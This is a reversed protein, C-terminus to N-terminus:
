TQVSSANSESLIAQEPKAPQTQEKPTNATAGILNLLRSM